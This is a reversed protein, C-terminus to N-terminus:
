RWGLWRWRIQRVLRALSPRRRIFAAATRVAWSRGGDRDIVIITDPRPPPGSSASEIWASTLCLGSEHALVGAVTQDHRHGRVRPDTSARGGHNWKMGVYDRASSFPRRQGRFTTGERAADLWRALFAQAAPHRVSLGVAAANIEPMAFAAGRSIGLAALAEDSSWEGVVRRGNAFLVYGQRAIEAFLEDLPRVVVASADLWLALAEGERQVAAFAFPKFAFPTVAHPPCEPPLEGARWFRVDGTYGSASLSAALRDLQRAYPGGTALSLVVRRV